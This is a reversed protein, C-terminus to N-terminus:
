NKEQSFSNAKKLSFFSAVTLEIFCEDDLGNGSNQFTNLQLIYKQYFGIFKQIFNQIEWHEIPACESNIEWSLIFTVNM